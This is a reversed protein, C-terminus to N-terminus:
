LGGEPDLNWTSWELQAKGPLRYVRTENVPVGEPYVEFSGWLERDIDGNPHLVVCSEAADLLLVRPGDVGPLQVSAGSPLDVEGPGWWRICPFIPAHGNNVVLVEGQGTSPTGWLGKDGVLDVTLTSFEGLHDQRERGSFGVLRVRLVSRRAAGARRLTLTTEWETSFMGRFRRVVETLSAGGTPFCSVTLSGTAAPYVWGLHRSGPYGVVEGTQQTPRSRPIDRMGGQVLHVGSDGTTLNM